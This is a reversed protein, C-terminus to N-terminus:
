MKYLEKTYSLLQKASMLAKISGNNSKQRIYNNM